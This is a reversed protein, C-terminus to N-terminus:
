MRTVTRVGVSARTTTPVRTPFSARMVWISWQDEKGAKLGLPCRMKKLLVTRDRSGGGGSGGGASNHEPSLQGTGAISGISARQQQKLEYRPSCLVAHTLSQNHHAM